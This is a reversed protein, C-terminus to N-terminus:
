LYGLRELEARDEASMEDLLLKSPDGSRHGLTIKVPCSKTGIVKILDGFASLRSTGDLEVQWPNEDPVLVQYLLSKRWMGIYLSMHYQSRPDSLVFDVGNWSGLERVPNAFQRDAALDGKIIEPFQQMMDYIRSVIDLKVPEVIFYDEFFLVFLEDQITDLMKLLGNSWKSLPYDKQDGLSLFSFNEPLEVTPSAFGVVTVPYHPHWHRNFQHAFIRLAKHYSDSTMVYVPIM